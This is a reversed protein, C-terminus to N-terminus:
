HSSSSKDDAYLYYDFSLSLLTSILSTYTIYLLFGLVSGRSAFTESFSLNQPRLNEPVFNGLTSSGSGPAFHM